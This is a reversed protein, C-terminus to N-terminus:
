GRLGYFDKLAEVDLSQGSRLAWDDLAREVSRLDLDALKPGIEANFSDIDAQDTQAWYEAPVSAMAQFAEDLGTRRDEPIEPLPNALEQLFPSDALNRDLAAALGTLNSRPTTPKLISDLSGAAPQSPLAAIDSSSAYSKVGDPAYNEGYGLEALIENQNEVNDRNNFLQTNVQVASQQQPSLASWEEDSLERIFPEAPGPMTGVDTGKEGVSGFVATLDRTPNATEQIPKKADGAPQVLTNSQLLQNAAPSNPTIKTEDGFLPHEKARAEQEQKSRVAAQDKDVSLQKDRDNQTKVQSYEERNKVPDGFPSWGGKQKKEDSKAAPRAATLGKWGAM